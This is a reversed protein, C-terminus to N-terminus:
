RFEAAQALLAGQVEALLARVHAVFAGGELPVGFTKGEKGPRDRRATVCSASAVDKPGVEVRVPVGKLEWYNYRWGPTKLDNSDVQPRCTHKLATKNQPTTNAFALQPQHRHLLTTAPPRLPRPPTAAIHHLRPCPQPSATPHVTGPPQWFSHWHLLDPARHCLIAFVRWDAGPM